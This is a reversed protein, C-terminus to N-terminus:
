PPKMAATVEAGPVLKTLAFVKSASVPSSSNSSSSTPTDIPWSNGLTLVCCFFFCLFIGRMTLAGFSFELREDEDIAEDEENGEEEVDAGVGVVVDVVGGITVGAIRENDGEVREVGEAVVDAVLGNEEADDGVIVVDFALTVVRVDERVGDLVAFVAIEADDAVGAGVVVREREGAVAEVDDGLVDVDDAVGIELVVEDVVGRGWRAPSLPASATVSTMGSSSSESSSVSTSRPGTRSCGCKPEPGAYEDGSRAATFFNMSPSGSGDSPRSSSSAGMASTAPAM